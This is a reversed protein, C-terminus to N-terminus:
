EQTQDGYETILSNELGYKEALEMLYGNEAYKVFLSNIQATLESGKKFGVAYYEGELEIGENMALSSYDGKGVISKALLIDVVAFDATGAKVSLLADMQSTVGKKNVNETLEDVYGQAASSNEYAVTKGEFGATSSIDESTAKRVICQANTMYYYTFDVKESRMIGDDDATNATFGNWICDITGGSLESYKNDWEILKFRVKYGLEEFMKTALETDFGILTGNEDEYNMPAYDTYGITITKEEPQDCSPLLIVSTLILTIALIATILKKM